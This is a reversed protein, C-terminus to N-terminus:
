ICLFNLFYISDYKDVFKLFELYLENKFIFLVALTLNLHVNECLRILWSSILVQLIVHM